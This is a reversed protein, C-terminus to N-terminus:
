AMPDPAPCADRPATEPQSPTQTRRRTREARKVCEERLLREIMARKVPESETELLKKFRDINAKIIRDMAVELRGAGRSPPRDHASRLRIRPM